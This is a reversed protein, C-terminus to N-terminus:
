TSGWTAATSDSGPPVSEMLALVPALPHLLVSGAGAMAGSCAATASTEGRGPVEGQPKRCFGGVVCFTPIGFNKTATAPTPSQM